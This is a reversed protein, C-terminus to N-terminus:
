LNKKRCKWTQKLECNPMRCKLDNNFKWAAYFWIYLFYDNQKFSLDSDLGIPPLNRSLKSHFIPDQMSKWPLFWELFIYFGM